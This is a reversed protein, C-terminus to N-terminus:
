GRLEPPLERGRWYGDPSWPGGEAFEVRHGRECRPCPAAIDAAIEGGGPTKRIEVGVLVVASDECTSCRVSGTVNQIRPRRTGLDVLPTM